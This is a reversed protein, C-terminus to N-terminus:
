RKPRPKVHALGGDVAWTAGTIWDHTPDLLYAIAEAIDEPRGVRGAAHLALSARLSEEDAVIRSTMGSAVLGPAVCNCRIGVRAYTSAASRALAEVGAKAAAIAEHSALGISAAASSCFVFSGRGRQRMSPVLVRLLALCSYLNVRLTEDLEEYTTRDGPKILLTGLCNAAADVEGLVELASRIAGELSAPDTADAVFTHVRPRSALDALREESRGIAAVGWGRQLLLDVLASGVSGTAGLILANNAVGRDYGHQTAECLRGVDRVM